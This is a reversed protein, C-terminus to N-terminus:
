WVLKGGALILAMALMPRLVLDSTRAALYSGLMVGPVSGVVLSVLLPWNVTGM